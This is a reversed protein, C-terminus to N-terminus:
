DRVMKALLLIVLECSFNNVYCVKSPGKSVGYLVLGIGTLSRAFNNSADLEPSALVFLSLSIRFEDAELNLFFSSELM